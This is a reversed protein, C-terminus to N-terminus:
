TSIQFSSFEGEQTDAVWPGMGGDERHVANQPWLRHCNVSVTLVKADCNAAGGEVNQDTQVQKGSVSVLVVDQKKRLPSVKIM